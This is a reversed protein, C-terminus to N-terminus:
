VEGVAVASNYDVSRISVQTQAVPQGATNCIDDISDGLHHQTIVQCHETQGYLTSFGAGMLTQVRRVFEPAVMSGGFSVLKLASLDRSRTEQADLLAVVMTPVGLIIDASTAEM